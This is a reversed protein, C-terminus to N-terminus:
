IQYALIRQLVQNRLDDILKFDINKGYCDELQDHIDKARELEKYAKSLLLNFLEQDESNQETPYVQCCDDLNFVTSDEPHYQHPHHSSVIGVDLEPVLIHEVVNPNFACHYAEYSFGRMELNNIFTQLLTQKAVKVEGALIYKTKVGSMINDIHNRPGKPTIASAFLHRKNVTLTSSYRDNIIEKMLNITAQKFRGKDLCEKYHHESKDYIIKAAKLYFYANKFCNSNAKSLGIIDDKISVLNNVHLYEGLNVIEEVCGAYKPDIIHPATADVIVVKLQPCVVADLSDPDSSCYYYELDFGKAQLAEGISRMFTGKGGGPGGKLLFIRNAGPDIVQDFLSFFGQSTNGGLFAKKIYAM